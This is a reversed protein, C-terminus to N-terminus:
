SAFIVIGSDAWWGCDDRSGSARKRQQVDKLRHGAQKRALNPYRAHRQVQELVKHSVLVARKLTHINSPSVFTKSVLLPSSGGYWSKLWSKPESWHLAWLKTTGCLIIGMAIM